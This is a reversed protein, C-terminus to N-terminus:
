DLGHEGVGNSEELDIKINDIYRLQRTRPRRGQPKGVLGQMCKEKEGEHWM